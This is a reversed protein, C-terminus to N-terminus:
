LFALSVLFYKRIKFGIKDQAIFADNLDMQILLM